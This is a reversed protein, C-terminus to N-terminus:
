EPGFLERMENVIKEVENKKIIYEGDDRAINNEFHNLHKEIKKIVRPSVDFEEYDLYVKALASSKFNGFLYIRCIEVIKSSLDFGELAQVFAGNKNKNEKDLIVDFMPDLAEMNNDMKALARAALYANDLDEGKLIKILEHLVEESGIEALKDAYNYAEDEDKDCMREILFAM